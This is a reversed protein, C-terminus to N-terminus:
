PGPHLNRAPVMEQEQCEPCELEIFGIAGALATASLEKWQEGCNKCTVDMEKPGLLQRSRGSLGHPESYAYQLVAISFSKTEIM